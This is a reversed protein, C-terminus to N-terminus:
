WNIIAILQGSWYQRGAPQTFERGAAGGNYRLTASFPIFNPITFQLSGAIQYSLDSLNMKGGLSAGLLTGILKSDAVELYLYDYGWYLSKFSGSALDSASISQDGHGNTQHFYEGRVAWEKEAGFTKEGGVSFGLNFPFGNFELQSGFEGWLDIGLVSGSLTAGLRLPALPGAAALAGLNFGLLTADARLAYSVRMLADSQIVGKQITESFNAFVFINGGELPLHLRIGSKGSRTDVAATSDKTQNVFDAPSWIQSAGWGLLQSGIRVFLTKGIDFSLHLESLALNPTALDPRLVQYYDRFARSSGGALLFQDYSASAYIAGLDAKSAKLFVKGYMHILAANAPEDPIWSFSGDSVLSLGALWEVKAATDATKGDALGTDFAGADFIGSGDDVTPPMAAPASPTQAALNGLSGTMLCAAVLWSVPFAPKM